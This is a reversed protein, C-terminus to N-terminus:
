SSDGHVGTVKTGEIVFASESRLTTKIRHIVLKNIVSGLIFSDPSCNYLTAYTTVMKNNDGHKMRVPAIWISIVM